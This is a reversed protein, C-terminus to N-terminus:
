KKQPNTSIREDPHIHYLVLPEKVYDVEYEKAIRLWVDYDQASQMLPDFGGIKRLCETRLLPFSTSEIFNKKILEDFIYGRYYQPSVSDKLYVRTEDNIKLCGCYVLAVGTKGMIKLQKELKEPLWEDDDDLYAIYEGRAEQLGTNRAVCAGM